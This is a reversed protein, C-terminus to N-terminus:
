AGQEAGAVASTGNFERWVEVYSRYIKTQEYRGRERLVQHAEPLKDFRVGPFEHHEIHYCINHPAFVFRELPGPIVTRTGDIDYRGDQEIGFHETYTRFMVVFKTVTLFPLLWYILAGRWAGTAILFALLALFAILNVAINAM